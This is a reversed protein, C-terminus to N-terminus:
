IFHDKYAKSPKGAQNGRSNRSSRILPARLRYVEHKSIAKSPRIARSRRTTIRTHPYSKRLNFLLSSCQKSKDFLSVAASGPLSNLVFYAICVNTLVAVLASVSEYLEVVDLSHAERSNPNSRYCGLQGLVGLITLGIM